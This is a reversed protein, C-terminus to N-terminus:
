RVFNYIPWNYKVALKSASSEALEINGFDGTRVIGGDCLHVYVGIVFSDEIEPDYFSDEVDGYEAFGIPQIQIANFSDSCGFIVIDSYDFDLLDHSASEGGDFGSIQRSHASNFTIKQIQM